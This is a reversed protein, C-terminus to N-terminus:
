NGNIRECFTLREVWMLWTHMSFIAVEITFVFNRVLKTGNYRTIIFNRQMASWECYESCGSRLSAVWAAAAPPDPSSPYLDLFPCLDLLKRGVLRKRVTKSAYVTSNRRVKKAQKQCWKSKRLAVLNYMVNYKNETENQKDTQATGEQKLAAFLM